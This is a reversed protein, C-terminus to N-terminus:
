SSGDPLTPSPARPGRRRWLAAVWGFVAAVALLVLGAFAWFPLGLSPNAGSGSPPSHSSNGLARVTIVLHATASFGAADGFTVQVSENGASPYAYTPDAGQALVGGGFNWLYSYPMTGGSVIVSFQIVAGPTSSSVNSVAAILPDPNVRIPLRVTSGNVLLSDSISVTASYDGPQSYSHTVNPLTSLNGDGFQWTILRLGTGGSDNSYFRVPFGADTVNRDVAAVVSPVPNVNVSLNASVPWGRADSGVLRTVYLAPRSYAHTVFADSTWSGDGLSWNFAVPATGGTITTTFLVPAGVTTPNPLAGLKVTPDPNVEVEFTSSINGGLYAALNEMASYTGAASPQCSFNGPASPGVCGPPLGSYNVRYPTVGGRITSEITLNQGVDVAGPFVAVTVSLPAYLLWSSNLDKANSVGSFELTAGLQGDFAMATASRSTPSSPLFSSQNLWSGNSYAWTYDQVAGNTLLVAYDYNLDYSSGALAGGPPLVSPSQATWEGNSFTWESDYPSHSTPSEGGFYVMESSNPDFFLAGGVVGPIQHSTTLETWSGGSYTYTRCPGGGYAVLLLVKSIVPDYAMVAGSADPLTTNRSQQTWSDNSFSWTYGGSNIMVITRDSPDYAMPDGADAGPNATCVPATTNGSCVETWTGNAYTWTDGLDGIDNSGGFLVLEHAADDYAVAASDRLSPGGTFNWRTWNLALDGPSNAPGDSLARPTLAPPSDPLQRSPGITSTPFAHGEGPPSALPLILALALAIGFSHVVGTSRGGTGSLGCWTGPTPLIFERRAMIEM